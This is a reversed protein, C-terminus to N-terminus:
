CCGDGHCEFSPSLLYYQALSDTTLCAATTASGKMECQKVVCFFLSSVCEYVFITHNNLSSSSLLSSACKFLKLILVATADGREAAVIEVVVVDRRRESFVILCNM